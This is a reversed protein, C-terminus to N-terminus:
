RVSRADAIGLTELWRQVMKSRFLSGVTKAAIKDAVICTNGSQTSLAIQIM